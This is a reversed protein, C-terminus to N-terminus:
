AEGKVLRATRALDAVRGFAKECDDQRTYGEGCDAVIRGNTARLQWRWAGAKDRYVRVLAVPKSKIVVSM